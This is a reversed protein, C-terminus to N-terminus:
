FNIGIGIKITSLKLNYYYSKYNREVDVSVSSHYSDKRSDSGRSIFYDYKFLFFITQSVTIDAGLSNIIGYEFIKRNYRSTQDLYENHSNRIEQWYYLTPGVDYHFSLFDNEFFAFCIQNNLRIGFSKNNLDTKTPSDAYKGDSFNASLDAGVKWSFSESLRYRFSLGQENLFTVDIASVSALSDKSAKISDQGYCSIISILVLLFINKMNGQILLM